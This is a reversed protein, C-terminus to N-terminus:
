QHTILNLDNPVGSKICVHKKFPHKEGVDLNVTAAVIAALESGTKASRESSTRLM